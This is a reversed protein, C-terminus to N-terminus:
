DFTGPPCEAETTIADTWFSADCERWGSGTELSPSSGSVGCEGQENCLCTVAQGVANGEPHDCVVLMLGPSDPERLWEERPALCDLEQSYRVVYRARCPEVCVDGAGSCDLAAGSGDSDPADGLNTSASGDGSATADAQETRGSEEDAGCAAVLLALSSGLLLFGAMRGILSSGYMKFRRGYTYRQKAVFCARSTAAMRNQHLRKLRRRAEDACWMREAM